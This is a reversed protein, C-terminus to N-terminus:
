PNGRPWIQGVMPGSSAPSQESALWFVRTYQQLPMGVADTGTGDITVPVFFNVNADLFVDIYYDYSSFSAPRQGVTGQYSDAIKMAPNAYGMPPTRAVYSASIDLSVRITKPAAIVVPTGLVAEKWGAGTGAVSVSALQTGDSDWIRLTRPSDSGSGARYYRMKTITGTTYLAIDNGYSGTVPGATGSGVASDPYAWLQVTGM